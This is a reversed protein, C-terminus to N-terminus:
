EGKNHNAYHAIHMNWLTKVTDKTYDIGPQLIRKSVGVSSLLTGKSNVIDLTLTSDKDAICFYPCVIDLCLKCSSTFFVSLASYATIPLSFLLHTMGKTGNGNQENDNDIREIFKADTIDLLNTM